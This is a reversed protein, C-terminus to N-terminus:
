VRSIEKQQRILSHHLTPYGAHTVPLTSHPSLVTIIVRNAVKLLLGLVYNISWFELTIVLKVFEDFDAMAGEMRPGNRHKQVAKSPYVWPTCTAYEVVPQQSL